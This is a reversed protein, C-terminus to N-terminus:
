PWARGPRCCRDAARFPLMLAPAVRRSRMAPPSGPGARRTTRSVSGWPLVFRRVRESRSVAYIRDARPPPTACGTRVCPGGSGRCGARRCGQAPPRPSRGACPRGRGARGGAGLRLLLRIRAREAPQNGRLLRAALDVVPAPRLRREPQGVRDQVEVVAVPEPDLELAISFTGPLPPASSTAFWEPASGGSPGIIMCPMRVSCGTGRGTYM